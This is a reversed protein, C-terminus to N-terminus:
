RTGDTAQEPKKVYCLCEQRHAICPICWGQVCALTGPNGDSTAGVPEVNQKVEPEVENDGLPNERIRFTVFVLPPVAHCNLECWLLLPPNLVDDAPAGVLRNLFDHICGQCGDFLAGYRAKRPCLFFQVSQKRFAQRRLFKRFVFKPTRHVRL